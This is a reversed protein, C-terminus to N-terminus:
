RAGLFFTGLTRLLIILDLELCIHKVYYLDLQLKQRADAVTAGYHYNIQAWGTLGPKILHREDYFPILTSLPGVFEPREPRPGVVSMDGRLINWLQPLEDLRSRRLWRGVPTARPDNPSAWASGRNEADLGMTRFKFLTFPRGGQGVRSQSYFIPGHNEIRLLVAVLFFLPATLVLAVAAVMFDFVRKAAAHERRHGKLDAALFWSASIHSVPVEGYTSEYFTTEDTVRCGLRLCSLAAKQYQPNRAATEAVVVEAVDHERVLADVQSIAGVVPIDGADQEAAESIEPVVVGVLRYGPVSGRRVSRVISGTLPGQGIVLLGKRVGLVAHHCLLRFSSAAILFMVTGCAAARRSLNSYMFLNMVLWTALMALIVTLLCRVVIRSRSWLTSTEYLGFVSGAILVATALIINALSLSYDALLTGDTTWWVFLRDGLLTGGCVIAIDIVMWAARPLNLLCGGVLASGGSRPQASAPGAPTARLLQPSATLDLSLISHTSLPIKAKRVTTVQRYNTIPRTIVKDSCPIIVITQYNHSASAATM